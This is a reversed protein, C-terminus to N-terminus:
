RAKPGERRFFRVLAAVSASLLAVFASINRLRHRRGPQPACPMYARYTADSPTNTTCAHPLYMLGFSNNTEYPDVAYGLLAKPRTWVPNPVRQAKALPALQAIAVAALWATRLSPPAFM